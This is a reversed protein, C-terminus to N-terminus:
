AHAIMAGANGGFRMVAQEVLEKGGLLVPQSHSQCNHARNYFSMATPDVRLINGIASRAKM